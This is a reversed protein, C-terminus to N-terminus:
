PNLDHSKKGNQKIGSLQNPAKAETIGLITNRFKAIERNLRQDSWNKSMDSQFLEQEQQEIEKKM